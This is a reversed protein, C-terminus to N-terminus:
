KILKKGAVLAIPHYTLPVNGNPLRFRGSYDDSFEALRRRSWPRAPAVATVGTEKLSRLAALPSDFEQVVLEERSALVELHNSELLNVIETVTRYPLGNGTLASIERLTEPGFTTFALFGGSRLKGALRAFFRAPDALWQFVANSLFLDSEPLEIEEIDGCLFRTNARERHFAECEPVLDVLTLHAFDFRGAIHNTLIGAGCGLETIEEYQRELTASTLLDLLTEAMGRQIVATRNYTDLSRRFRQRVANKDIEGPM